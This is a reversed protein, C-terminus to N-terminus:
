ESLEKNNLLFQLLLKANSLIFLNERFVNRRFIVLYKPHSILIHFLIFLLINM